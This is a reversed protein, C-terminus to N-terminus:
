MTLGSSRRRWPMGLRPETSTSVFPYLRGHAIRRARVMRRLALRRRRAGLARFAGGAVQGPEAAKMKSALTWSRPSELALRM